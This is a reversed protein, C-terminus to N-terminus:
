FFLVFPFLCFLEFLDVILLVNVLVIDNFSGKPGNEYNNIMLAFLVCRHM